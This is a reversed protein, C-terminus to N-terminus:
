AAYTGYGTLIQAPHQGSAVAAQDFKAFVAGASDAAGDDVDYGTANAAAGHMQAGEGAVFVEQAILNVVGKTIVWGIPEESFDVTEAAVGRITTDNDQALRVTNLLPDASLGVPLGRNVDVSFQMAEVTGGRLPGAGTGWQYLELRDIYFSKANEADTTTKVFRISKVDDLSYGTQIYTSTLPIEFYHPVDGFLRFANIFATDVANEWELVMNGNSDYMRVTFDGAENYETNASSDHSGWFGFYNFGRMDYATTLTFLAYTNLSTNDWAAKICNTGVRKYAAGATMTPGTGGSPAGGTWAGGLGGTDTTAECDSVVVIEQNLGVVIDIKQGVRKPPTTLGDANQKIDYAM